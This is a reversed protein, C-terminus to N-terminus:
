RTSGAQLLSGAATGDRRPDAAGIWGQAERKLFVLGSLLVGEEVVHGRAQLAPALRTAPTRAELRIKGPNAASIHGKGLAQAPTRDNGLMEVLASAVYDPIMRGGASGGVVVPRGEPDFAIVPSMATSPRKGPAIRNSTTGDADVPDNFVNMANNLVFGGVMIRAGFDLGITTTIAVANGARDVVAIQSTTDGQDNEGKDRTATLVPLTGPQPDCSAREPDISGARARAYAASVLERAPVPVQDPDDAFRGRDAFALKSAELYLHAFDPDDFDFHGRGLMEVMQLIQLVQVGGFSPPGMACVRYVIFPACLPNREIARYDRLDAETMLSPRFGRQAAAVIETAGGKELLGAPGSAAVRKLTQAYPPNRITTGIPLAKGDAGFFLPVMEPHNAAANSRSLVRHLYPAIPYGSEAAAIAPEFLTSWPLAGLREHALKLVPLTGPMGVSRGGRLAAQADLISGDLDTRLSPPVRSPASALGDFSRLTKTGADWLMVVAGGGLGSSQPEVLGLVMQAAIAADIASGGRELM